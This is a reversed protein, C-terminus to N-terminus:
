HWEWTVQNRALLLTSVSGTLPNTLLPLSKRKKCLKDLENKLPMKLAEPVCRDPAIEPTIDPDVTLSATGPLHGLEVGVVNPFTTLPAIPWHLHFTSESKGQQWPPACFRSWWKCHCVQLSVEWWYYLMLTTAFNGNGRVLCMLQIRKNILLCMLLYVLQYLRKVNRSKFFGGINYLWSGPFSGTGAM